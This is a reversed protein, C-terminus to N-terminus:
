HMEDELDGDPHPVEPDPEDDPGSEDPLPAALRGSVALLALDLADLVGADVHEREDGAAEALREYYALLHQQLEGVDADDLRSSLGTLADANVADASALGAVAAIGAVFARNAAAVRPTSGAFQLM